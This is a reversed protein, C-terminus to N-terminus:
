AGFVTRLKSFRPAGLGSPTDFGSTASFGSTGAPGCQTSAGQTIDYFASPNQYLTPHVYGVRGKGVKKRADNILAFISAVTPCAASTGGVLGYKGGTTIIYNSGAAALDPFSRGARNFQGANTTGIMSLYSSVASDQYSPRPFQNSFGAGSTFKSQALSVMQEPFQETAGVSLVYPCGGPYTPVFPDGATACAGGNGAVGKDGSAVVITTGTAALKQMSACMTQAEAASFDAENAGYSISIVGPRKSVDQNLFYQPILNFIDGMTFQNGYNVIDNLLPYTQSVSTEIDLMVEVGAAFLPFTFGGATDTVKVRVSSADSRFRKLFTTLDSQVFNQGILSMITIARDTSTAPTYSSTEYADRLCAPTVASNNCQTYTARESFVARAVASEDKGLAGFTAIPVLQKPVGFSSIPYVSKVLSTLPSPITYNKARPVVVAKNTDLQFNEFKTNFLTQLSGISSVFTLQDGFKTQTITKADVGRSTLYNKVTSVAQASPTIYAKLEDDSLWKGSGEAAIQEMRVALGDLNAETLQLTTKFPATLDPLGIAQWVNSIIDPAHFPDILAFSASPALAIALTAINVFRM